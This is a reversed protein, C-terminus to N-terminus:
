SVIHVLMDDQGVRQGPTVYVAEVVGTRQARIENEMKM